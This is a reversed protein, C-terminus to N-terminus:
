NFMKEIEATIDIKSKQMFDSRQYIKVNKQQYLSECIESWNQMLEYDDAESSYMFCSLGKKKLIDYLEMSIIRKKDRLRDYDGYFLLIDIGVVNEPEIKMREILKQAEAAAKTYKDSKSDTLDDTIWARKLNQYQEKDASNEEKYLINVKDKVLEKKANYVPQAPNPGDQNSCLKRLMDHLRIKTDNEDDQSLIDDTDADDCDNGFIIINSAIGEASKQEVKWLKTVAGQIIYMMQEINDDIWYIQKM